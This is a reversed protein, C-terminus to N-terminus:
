KAVDEDALAELAAIRERIDRCCECSPGPTMGKLWIVTALLEIRAREIWDGAESATHGTDNM